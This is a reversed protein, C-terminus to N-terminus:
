YEHWGEGVPALHRTLKIHLKNTKERQMGDASLHCFDHQGAGMLVKWIQSSNQHSGDLRCASLLQIGAM